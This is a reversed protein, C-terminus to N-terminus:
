SYRYASYWYWPAHLPQNFFSAEYFMGRMDEVNSV